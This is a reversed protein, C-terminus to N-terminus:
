GKLVRGAASIAFGVGATIAENALSAVLSKGGSKAADKLRDGISKEGALNPLTANLAALGKDTLTCESFYIQGRGTSAVYGQGILWALSEM